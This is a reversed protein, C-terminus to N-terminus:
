PNGPVDLGGVPIDIITPAPGKFNPRPATTGRPPPPPDKPQPGLIGPLGGRRPRSTQTPAPPLPAPALAPTNAAVTAPPITANAGTVSTPIAPMAPTTGAPTPPVGAAAAKAAAKAAKEAEAAAALAPAMQAELNFLQTVTVFKYGKATLEDITSPMADVTSEHIDHCLIISGPRTQALIRDHVKKVTRPHQWDLPDVDWLVTPYGLTEMIRKRQVMRIQGYPPRYTLPAVGCASVIADHTKQLQSDLSTDGMQALIPHSWSHNAVEHGEEAIRKVVHPYAAANRGVMYFTAKINRAKLIDLLKPTFVDHPGDDFTLAVVPLTGINCSNYVVKAGPPLTRPLTDLNIPAGPAAGAPLAAEPALAPRVEVQIWPATPDVPAGPTAGPAPTAPSGPAPTGAPAPQGPVIAPLVTVTASGNAPPTASGAAPAPAQAGGRSVVSFCALLLAARLPIM